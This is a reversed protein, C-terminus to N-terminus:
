HIASLPFGFTRDTETASAVVWGNSIQEGQVGAAGALLRPGTGMTWIVLTSAQSSSDNDGRCNMVTTTDSAGGILCATGDPSVRMKGGTALDQAWIQGTGFQEWFVLHEAVAFSPISWGMQQGPTAFTVLDRAEPEDHTSVRLPLRTPYDAGAEIWAVNEHSLGLSLVHTPTALQRVITGDALSRLEIRSGVPRKGDPDDFSYAIQGDAVAVNPVSTALCGEGGMPGGFIVDNQGTAIERLAAPRGTGDLTGAVIRWARPQGLVGPCPARTETPPGVSHWVLVAIESADAVISTGTGGKIARAASEEQTLPIDIAGTWSGSGAIVVNQEWTVRYAEPGSYADGVPLPRLSVEVTPLATGTPPGVSRWVGGALLAAALAASAVVLFAIRSRRDM